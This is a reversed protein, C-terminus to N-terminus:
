VKAGKWGAVYALVQSDGLWSLNTGADEDAVKSRALDLLRAHEEPTLPQQNAGAAVAQEVEAVSEVGVVATHAGLSLSYRTALDSVEKLAGAGLVKMAVLGCGTRKVAPLLFHQPGTVLTDIIGLAPMVVDFPFRELALAHVSPRAHGSIGIFRVRGARQAEVAAELAGGPGTVADLDGVTNVTHLLWLDLYDTRLQKLSLELDALAAERNRKTVKTALFVGSRSGELGEGVMLESEYFHATDFYTVGLQLARRVIAVGQEHAVKGFGFAGTGLGIVSVRAGTRGLLRTPLTMYSEELSRLWRNLM